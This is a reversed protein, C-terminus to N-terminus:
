LGLRAWVTSRPAHPKTPPTGYLDGTVAISSHGLLDAAAKIRVSSELWALAASHRMTQAGVKEINAQAAAPEVTHLMNRPDVMTGLDTCFVVGTDM